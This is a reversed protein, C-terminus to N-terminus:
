NNYHKQKLRLHRGITSTLQSLHEGSTNNATNESQVPGDMKFKHTITTHITMKGGDINISKAVTRHKPKNLMDQYGFREQAFKKVKEQSVRMLKLHESINMLRNINRVQLMNSTITPDLSM